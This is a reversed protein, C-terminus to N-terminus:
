LASVGTGAPTASTVSAALADARAFQVRVLTGTAAKRARITVEAGHRQAIERVIALGLGSGGAPTGKIRYFREFVREREAPPIGPGDDEVELLAYARDERTRVTVAGDRPTYALANEVLNAALEAILGPAALVQAPALEFGLDIGRADARQLWEDVRTHVIAALDAPELAIPADGSPEVHALALLQGALRATRRTGAELQELAAEREAGGTERRAAEVQAQLAALPTRLQHAADAIFRGQADLAGGLRVLLANLAAVLPRVEAPKDAEPLPRLDRHSRAAIEARLAELPALGRRIGFWVVAVAFLAFILEPITATILAQRVLARRKILTEGVQILVEGAPTTVAIAAIRVAEGRVKGDYFVPEGPRPQVAPPPLDRTGGILADGRRVAFFIRDQTDVRLAELVGAPLDLEIAGSGFRLREALALAPDLLANDYAESALRVALAYAAVGGAVLVVLLPVLLWQLLLRRLSDIPQM